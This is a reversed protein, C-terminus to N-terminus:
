FIKRSTITLNGPQFGAREKGAMGQVTILTDGNHADSKEPTCDPQAALQGAGHGGWGYEHADM